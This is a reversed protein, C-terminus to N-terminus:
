ARISGIIKQVLRVFEDIPEGKDFIGDLRLYELESQISPGLFGSKIILRVNPCIERLYKAVIIGDWNNEDEDNLRLDVVAIDFAIKEIAALADEKNGTVETVLGEKELYFKYIRQWAADDEVLLARLTNNAM